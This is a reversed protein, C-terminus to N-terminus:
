PSNTKFETISDNGHFGVLLKSNDVNFYVYMLFHDVDFTALIQKGDTDVQEVSTNGFVFVQGSAAVHINCANYCHTFPPDQLTATVAGDMTLTCLEGNLTDTVYVRKGDPSVAVGVVTCSM